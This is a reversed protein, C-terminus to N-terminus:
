YLEPCYRGQEALLEFKELAEDRSVGEGKAIALYVSEKIDLEAQGAQRFGYCLGLILPMGLLGSVAQGISYWNIARVSVSGALGFGASQMIANCMGLGFMFGYGVYSRRSFNTQAFVPLGIVVVALGVSSIWIRNFFSFRSGTFIAILQGCNNAFGYLVNSIVIFKPNYSNSLYNGAQLYINFCLLGVIGFFFFGFGPTADNRKNLIDQNMDQPTSGSDITKADLIPQSEEDRTQMSRLAFKKEVKM